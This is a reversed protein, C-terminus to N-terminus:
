KLLGAKGEGNDIVLASSEGRQEISLCLVISGPGSGGQSKQQRQMRSKNILARRVAKACDKFCRKQRPRYDCLQIAAVPASGLARCGQQTAMDRVVIGPIQYLGFMQRLIRQSPLLLLVVVNEHQVALSVVLSAASM